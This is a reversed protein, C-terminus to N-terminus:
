RRLSRLEGREVGLADRAVGLIWDSGVQRPTFGSPM